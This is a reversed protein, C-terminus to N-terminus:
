GPPSRMSSRRRRKSTARSLPRRRMSPAAASSRMSIIRPKRSRPLTLGKPVEIVRNEVAGGETVIVVLARGQDIPVFEIHKLAADYTPAVVFGAAHSLGSLLKSAEDLVDEVSKHSASVQREISRREEDTLDGIELLGDVFMRLGAETPVRGASTHPSFILGLAELDSMVNRISAASLSIPLHRSLFRSGVPEGTELYTEVVRRLIERSRENLDMVGVM